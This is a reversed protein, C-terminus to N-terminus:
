SPAFRRYSFISRRALCRSLCSKKRIYDTEVRCGIGGPWGAMDASTPRRDVFSFSAIEHIRKRMVNDGFDRSTNKCYSRTKQKHTSIRRDRQSQQQLFSLVKDDGSYITWLIVFSRFRQVGISNPEALSHEWERLGVLFEPARVKGRDYIDLIVISPRAKQIDTEIHNKTGDFTRLEPPWEILKVRYLKVQSSSKGNRENAVATVVRYAKGADDDDDEVIWIVM